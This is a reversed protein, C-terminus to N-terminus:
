EGDGDRLPVVTTESHRFTSKGTRTIRFRAGCNPDPCAVEADTTMWDNEDSIRQKAPLLPLLAAAAEKSPVVPVIEFDVIDDWRAVWRQLLSADDCEMLQFCRRMDAAIWSDVYTLGEPMQRGKEAFRRYVAEADRNKYREIVMFLM